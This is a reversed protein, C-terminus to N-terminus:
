FARADFFQHGTTGFRGLRQFSVFVGTVWSRVVCFQSRGQSELFMQQLCTSSLARAKRWEERVQQKLDTSGGMNGHNERQSGSRESSGATSTTGNPCASTPPTATAIM